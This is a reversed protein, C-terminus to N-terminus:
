KLLGTIENIKKLRIPIEFPKAFTKPDEMHASIYPTLYMPEIFASVVERINKEVAMPVENNPIIRDKKCSFLFSLVFLITLSKKMVWYFIRRSEM